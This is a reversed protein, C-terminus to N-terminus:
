KFFRRGESYNAPPGRLAMTSDATSSCLRVLEATGVPLPGRYGLLDPGLDLPARGYSRAYWRGRSAVRMDARRPEGVRAHPPPQDATQSDRALTWYPEATPAGPGDFTASQMNM